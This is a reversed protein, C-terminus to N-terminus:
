ARSQITSTIRDSAGPQNWNEELEVQDFDSDSEADFRALFTADDLAQREEQLRQGMVGVRQLAQGAEKLADAQPAGFADASARVPGAVSPPTIAINNPGLVRAM